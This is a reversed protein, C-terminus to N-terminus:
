LKRYLVYNKVDNYYLRLENKQLSFSRVASLIQPFVFPPSILHDWYWVIRFSNTLFDIEYGGEFIGLSFMGCYNGYLSRILSDAVSSHSLSDKAWFFLDHPLLEPMTDTEIKVVEVFVWKTNYLSIEEKEGNEKECSTAGIALLLLIAVFATIKLKTRM